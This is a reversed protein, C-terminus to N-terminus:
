PKSTERRESDALGENAPEGEALENLAAVAPQLRDVLVCGVAGALKEAEKNVGFDSAATLHQEKAWLGRCLKELKRAVRGAERRAATRADAM